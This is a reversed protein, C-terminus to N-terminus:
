VVTTPTTRRSWREASTRLTIYTVINFIVKNIFTPFIQSQYTHELPSIGLLSSFCVTLKLAGSNAGAASSTQGSCGKRHSTAVSFFFLEKRLCKHPFHHSFVCIVDATVLLTWKEKLAERAGPSSLRTNLQFDEGVETLWGPPSVPKCFFHNQLSLTLSGGAAQLSQMKPYQRGAAQSSPKSWM